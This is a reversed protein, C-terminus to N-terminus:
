RESALRRRRGADRLGRPIRVVSYRRAVPMALWKQLRIM